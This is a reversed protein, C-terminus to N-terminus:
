RKGFHLREVIQNLLRKVNGDFLAPSHPIDHGPLGDADESFVACLEDVTFSANFYARQREHRGRREHQFRLFGSLLILLLQDPCEGALEDLEDLVAEIASEAVPDLPVLHFVERLAGTFTSAYGAALLFRNGSQVPAPQGLGSSEPQAEASRCRAAVSIAARTNEVDDTPTLLLAWVGNSGTSKRELQWRCPLGKVPTKFEFERVPPGACLQEYRTNLEAEWVKLKAPPIEREGLVKLRPLGSSKDPFFSLKLKRSIDTAYHPQTDRNNFM